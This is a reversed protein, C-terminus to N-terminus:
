LVARSTTLNFKARYLEQNSIFSSFHTLYTTLEIRKKLLLLCNFNYIKYKSVSLYHVYIALLISIFCIFGISMSAVKSRKISNSSIVGDKQLFKIGEIYKCASENPYSIAMRTECKGANSYLEKCTDSAGYNGGETQQTMFDYACSICQKTVLSSETYPLYYGYKSYFCSSDCSSFESCKDDSFIGLYISKGDSACYPGIFYGNGGDDDGDGLAACQSYDVPDFDVSSDYFSTRSFGGNKEFCDSQCDDDQNSCENYCYNTIDENIYDQASLYNYVFTNFDVVYDGYKSSCGSTSKSQCSNAPCLRFRILNSAIIRNSSGSDGGDDEDNENENEGDWQNVSHCDLFKISYGGVFYYNSADDDGGDELSRSGKVLTSSAILDRGAKSSTNFEKNLHLTRSRFASVTGLLLLASVTNLIFMISNCLTM